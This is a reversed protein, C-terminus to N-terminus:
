QALLYNPYRWPRTKSAKKSKVSRIETTLRRLKMENLLPDSTQRRWATLHQQLDKLLHGHAADRVLTGPPVLIISDQASRGTKLSGMGHQGREANWHYHGVLNGLSGLNRDARVIISGGKGGDGGDPGGRPVHAEKRFSSCGNGGDGARCM